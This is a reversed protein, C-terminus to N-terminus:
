QQVLARMHKQAENYAYAEFDASKESADGKRLNCIRIYVVDDKVVTILDVVLCPYPQARLLAKRLYFLILFCSLLTLRPKASDSFGDCPM